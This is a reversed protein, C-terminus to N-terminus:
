LTERGDVYTRMIRGIKQDGGFVDYDHDDWPGGARSTNARKLILM